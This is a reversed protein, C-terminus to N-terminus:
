IQWHEVSLRVEGGKSYFVIDKSDKSPYIRSTFTEEGDNIFIEVSSKDMFIHMKVKGNNKIFCKREADAEKHFGDKSRDFVIKENIADYFMLIEEDKHSNYRMKIGFQNVKDFEFKCKLEFSDGNIGDLKTETDKILKNKYEVKGKRLKKLERLPKQVVKNDKMKLERIITLCHLWRNDITPSVERDPLGMWGLLLTRGDSTKMVQPAYFEFGRDLELFDGCSFEGTEYNLSGLVYGCQYINNYLDGQKDVGQPCFLLVDKNDLTFLNPCEWMYGLFGFKSLNSGLIEHVISWNQLDDSCYLVTSGKEENRQAGLVMYWKDNHKWVKPDRFHRTYGEPQNKIVPNIYPKKFEVGDSSQALCQYTEREGKSDKVNGTYMLVLKGGNNVASGSYCGHSDYWELPSLAVPLCEWTILDKSRFHGWCVHKEDPYFPNYQYFVHYEGNIEILGNPDNMFGVKPMLHYNQRYYDKEVKDRYKEEIDSVKKIFELSNM